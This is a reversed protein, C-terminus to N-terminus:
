LTGGTFTDVQGVSIARAAGPTLLFLPLLVALGPLSLRLNNSFNMRIATIVCAVNTPPRHLVQM